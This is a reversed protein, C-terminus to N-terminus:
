SCDFAEVDVVAEAAEGLPNEYRRSSGDRTDTIELSYGVNTTAAALVWFKGNTSCGDLVKLLVEYNDPGFFWFLGSDDSRLEAARGPGQVGEFDTWTIRAEFRNQNLALVEDQKTEDLAPAVLASRARARQGETKTSSCTAFAGTDIISPPIRGRPNEYIVRKGTLTDTVRLDYGVDTTAAAFVWFRDNIGCGDLVKVLLEWNNEGFFWFLGSDSTGGEVTRAAGRDDSTNWDVEVRFRGDQLCLGREEDQACAVRLGAVSGTVKSAVYLVGHGAVMLADENGGELWDIDGEPSFYYIPPSLSGDAPNRPYVDLSEGELLYVHRGAPDVALKPPDIWEPYYLPSRTDVVFYFFEFPSLTVLTLDDYASHWLSYLHRGDASWAFGHSEILPDQFLPFDSMSERSRDVFFAKAETDPREGTVLHIWRGDPSLTLSRVRGVDFGDESWWDVQGLGPRLTAARLGRESSWRVLLRSDASVAQMEGTENSYSDFAYSGDPRRLFTAGSRDGGAFVFRGDPSAVFSEWSPLPNPTAGTIELGDPERVAASFSEPSAVLLPGGNPLALGVPGEFEVSPLPSEIQQLDVSLPIAALTKRDFSAVYGHRGDPAFVVGGPPSEPEFPDASRLFAVTELESGGQMPVLLEVRSQFGNDEFEPVLVAGSTPDVAFDGLGEVGTRAEVTISGSASLRLTVIATSVFFEGYSIRAHFRDNRTAAPRVPGTAFIPSGDILELSEGPTLTGTDPNRTFARLAGDGSQLVFGGDDSVVLGDTTGVHHVELGVMEGGPDLEYVLIRSGGVYLHRGDPSIALTRPAVADVVFRKAELLSLEGSVADRHFVLMLAEDGAYLAYLYTADPSLALNGSPSFGGLPLFHLELGEFEVAGSTEDRSWIQIGNEQAGYLFRGDPSAVLRDAPQTPGHIVDFVELPTAHAPSVVFLLLAPYFYRCFNM